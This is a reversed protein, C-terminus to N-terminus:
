EHVIGLKICKDALTRKPLGLSEATLTRNGQFQTLREAIITSEFAKVAARLDVVDAGGHQPAPMSRVPTSRLHLSLHRYTLSEGDGAYACGLEIMNKLERVNGPFHRTSLASLVSGDAGTIHTGNEQNFREIFHPILMLVDNERENLSPVDIPFQYLRYFLDQRFQQRDIQARLAMHTAAILRFHSTQEQKAGLPRYQHTELVRLLKAQLALPMDGIEDLFLTGHDALALLGTKDRDAGSFAGKAYGFLESELLHEPIAACNVAVFAKDRRSSMAHIAKAVVDKGVGTEGQILVTLQSQAAKVVQQRLAKMPASDGVLECKLRKSADLLAQHTEVGRLSESLRGRSDNAQELWFGMECQRAFLQVWPQFYSSWQHQWAEDRWRHHAVVCVCIGIVRPGESSPNPTLVPTMVIQDNPHRKGMLSLFLADRWYVLQEGSLVMQDGHNLVQALPSSFDQSAWLFSTGQFDTVLQRGDASLSVFVTMVTNLMTTLAQNFVSIRESLTTADSLQNAVTLWDPM